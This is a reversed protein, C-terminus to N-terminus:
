ERVLKYFLKVTSDASLTKVEIVKANKVSDLENIVLKISDNSATLSQVKNMEEVPTTAHEKELHAAVLLIIGFIVTCVVTTIVADKIDHWLSM